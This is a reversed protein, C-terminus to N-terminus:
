YILLLASGDPDEIQITRAPFQSERLLRAPDAHNMARPQHVVVMGSGARGEILGEAALEEYVTLITNRSVRLMRALLRTSPLRAGPRGARRIAAAFQTRLQEYLPM